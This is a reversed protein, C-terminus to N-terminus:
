EVVTVATFAVRYFGAAIDRMKINAREFHLKDPIQYEYGPAHFPCGNKKRISECFLQEVIHECSKRM